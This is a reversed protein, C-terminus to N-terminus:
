LAKPPPNRRPHFNIPKRDFDDGRSVWGVVLEAAVRDIGFVSKEQLNSRNM